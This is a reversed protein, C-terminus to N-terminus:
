KHLRKIKEAIQGIVEENRIQDDISFMIFVRRCYKGSFDDFSAGM